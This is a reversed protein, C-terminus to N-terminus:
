LELNYIWVAEEYTSKVKNLAALSSHKNRNKVYNYLKTVVSFHYLFKHSIREQATKRDSIRQLYQYPM